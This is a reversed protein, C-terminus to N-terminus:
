AAGRLLTPKFSNNPLQFRFGIIREQPLSHATLSRFEELSDQEGKILVAIGNTSTATASGYVRAFVSHWFFNDGAEPMGWITEFANESNVGTQNPQNLWDIDASIFWWDGNKWCHVSSSGMILADSAIDSAIREASPGLPGFFLEPRERITEEVTRM